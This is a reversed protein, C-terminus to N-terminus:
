GLLREVAAVVPAFSLRRGTVRRAVEDALERQGEAFLNEV